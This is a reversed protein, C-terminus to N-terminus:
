RITLATLEARLNARAREERGALGPTVYLREHALLGELVRARGARWAEDPVHAYEARVARRYSEYTAPDAGLISLDADCLAAEDAAGPQHSATVRVLRAVDDVVPPAVGASALREVALVASAEENAGGGARPDYVADHYWAALEVAASDALGVGTAPLHHLVWGVHDLVHYRRHPEAYRDVLETHLGAAIDAPVGAGAATTLFAARLDDIVM